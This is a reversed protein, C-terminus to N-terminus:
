PADHMIEVRGIQTEGAMEIKLFKPSGTVNDAHYLVPKWYNYDGVGHYFDDKQPTIEQFNQGDASASIKL